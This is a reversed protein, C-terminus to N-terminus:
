LFINKTGLSLHWVSFPFCRRLRLNRKDNGELKTINQKQQETEFTLDLLNHETLGQQKTKCTTSWEIFSSPPQLIPAYVLLALSFKLATLILTSLYSYLPFNM